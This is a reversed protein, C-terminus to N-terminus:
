KENKYFIGYGKVKGTFPVKKIIVKEKIKTGQNYKPNTSNLKRKKMELKEINELLKRNQRGM